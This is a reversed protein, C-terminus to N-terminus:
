PKQNSSIASYAEYEMGMDFAYARMFAEILAQKEEWLRRALPTAMPNRRLRAPEYTQMRQWVSEYPLGMAGGTMCDLAIGMAGEEDLLDAEMLLILDAPADADCLWREKDSHESVLFAARDAVADEIGEARAYDGLWHASHRGHDEKGHIYGIDHFAAALRLADPQAVLGQALLREVWMCVRRIHDFRSRFPQERRVSDAGHALLTRQVYLLAKEQM